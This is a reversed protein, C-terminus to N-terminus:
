LLDIDTKMGKLKVKGWYKIVGKKKYYAEKLEKYALYKKKEEEDDLQSQKEEDSQKIEL